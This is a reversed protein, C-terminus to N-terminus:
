RVLITLGSKEVEVDIPESRTTFFGDSAEVALRCTGVKRGVFRGNALSDDAVTAAGTEDSTVVWKATLTGDTPHGDDFAAGNLALAKKRLVKASDAPSIVEAIPRRNRLEPNPDQALRKIQEPTLNTTYCTPRSADERRSLVFDLLESQTGYNNFKGEAGIDDVAIKTCRYHDFADSIENLSKTQAYVLSFMPIGLLKFFLSKGTGPSGTLVVSRGEVLGRLAKEAAEHFIYKRKILFDKWKNVNQEIDAIQQPNLLLHAVKDVTNGILTM